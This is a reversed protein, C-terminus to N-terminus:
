SPGGYLLGRMSRLAALEKVAIRPNRLLQPLVSPERFCNIYCDDCYVGRLFKPKDRLVNFLKSKAFCPYVDGVWDIYFVNEGGKCYYNPRGGEERLVDEFYTATNVIPYGARKLKLLKYVSERLKERLEEERFGGHLSYTNVEVETPYCFGIPVKLGQTVYKVLGEVGDLVLYPNLYVLAYMKMELERARLISRVQKALVGSVGRIKDCVAPDWHDISVTLVDLGAEYLSDVVKLDRAGNTSLVTLLDLKCAYRIAEY